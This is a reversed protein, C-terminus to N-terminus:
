GQSILIAGIIIACVGIIKRKTIDEGLLRNAIVMTWIYAISGMPLIFSYDYYRLLSICIIASALYLFGGIWFGKEKLLIVVNLKGLAGSASKFFYSAFASLACSGIVLVYLIIVNM